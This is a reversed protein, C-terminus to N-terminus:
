PSFSYPCGRTFYRLAKRAAARPHPRHIVELATMNLMNLTVRAAAPNAEVYALKGTMRSIAAPPAYGTENIDLCIYFKFISGKDPKSYFNIEGGMKKVLKQTIVLGLGTGGHRRSISADAQHFAQFLQSQQQTSMGIGSDQITVGLKIQKEDQFDPYVYIDINGKQTFKIANGLLNTVIQQLRMADGTVQEPVKNNINLTLELGKEHASHALLVVVEDFAERLSFPMHELMLKEAELKSFDLVDNIITLLNNASRQIAQLYDKQTPTLPTKLTQHTFGIVGNLPTRLEHSMNALFESKVRVAEQAHKKALDLEINQLEMQQVTNRLNATAQVIHQQMEQHHASLSMAMSNIGNKLVALEGPMAGEVRSDLQGQRILDVTNVMNGIPVAVDRLLRWTFFATVCLCFLLFLAAIFIEKYQQLRISQLDLDIAIYGSAQNAVANKKDAFHAEHIVPIRLILSNDHISRMLAHPLPTTASLQLPASNYHPNSTAFLTHTNDFVTIARVIGANRRHLLSILHGVNEKNHFNIGYESIVALPEIISAGASIIQDQLENYRHIAFTTSLLLGLLLGPALILIIMHTRLSYQTM